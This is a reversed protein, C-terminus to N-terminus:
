AGEACPDDPVPSTPLIPALSARESLAEASEEWALSGLVYQSVSEIRLAEEAPGAAIGAIPGMGSVAGVTGVSGDFAALAIGCARRPDLESTILSEKKFGTVEFM